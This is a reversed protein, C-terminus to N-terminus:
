ERGPVSSSAGSAAPASGNAPPPAVGNGSLPPAPVASPTSRKSKREERLRDRVQTGLIFAASGATLGLFAFASWYGIGASLLAFASTAVPGGFHGMTQSVGYFRGRVSAPAIDSGLTQMNGGTMSTCAYVCLYAAMFFGFPVHLLATVALFGFAVLLLAFGPVLTAKRGFHDMIWGSSLSIPIALVTTLTALLAIQQPGM